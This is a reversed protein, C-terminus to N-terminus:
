VRIKILQRCHFLIALMTNCKLLRGEPHGEEVVAAQRDQSQRRHPHLYGCHAHRALIRDVRGGLALRLLAEAPRFHSM